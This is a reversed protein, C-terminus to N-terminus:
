WSLGVDKWGCGGCWMWWPCGPPMGMGQGKVRVAAADGASSADVYLYGSDGDDLLGSADYDTTAGGQDMLYITVGAMASMCFDDLDYMKYKVRVNYNSGKYVTYDVKAYCTWGIGIPGGKVKFTGSSVPTWGLPQKSDVATATGVSAITLTMLILAIILGRVLTKKKM